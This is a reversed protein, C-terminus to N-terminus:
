YTKTHVKGHYKAKITIRQRLTLLYISFQSNITSFNENTQRMSTHLRSEPVALALSAQMTKASDHCFLSYGFIQKCDAAPVDM